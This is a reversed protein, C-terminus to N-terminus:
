VGDVSQFSSELPAMLDLTLEPGAPHRAHVKGLVDLVVPLDRDFHEPRVQGGNIKLSKRSRSARPGRRFSM